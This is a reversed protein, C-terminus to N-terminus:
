DMTIEKKVMQTETTEDDYIKTITVIESNEVYTVNKEEDIEYYNGNTTVLIPYKEEEPM